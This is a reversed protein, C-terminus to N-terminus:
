RPGELTGTRTDEAMRRTLFPDNLFTGFPVLSALFTRLWDASSWNRGWLAAIMLAVYALFAYGHIPGMVHVWSPNGLMYKVPMAALFLLITTIGEVVAILRFTAFLRHSRHPNTESKARLM